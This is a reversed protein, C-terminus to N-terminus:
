ADDAMGELFRSPTGSWSLWLEDRARTMAVYLLRQEQALADEEDSPDTQEEVARRHPVQGEEVASIAVAQFELGKARHMTGVRIGPDHLSANSHLKLVPLDARSLAASAETALANTRLFVAIGETPTGADVWSQVRQVMGAWEEQRSPFSELVPEPGRRLSVTRTRDESGEDLDDVETGLVRDAVQRIQETTRYNVRLIHSRGRVEIGLSRLSFGGPYIRQGADGAVLFNEEHGRALSWLFRIEPARLDQVEDVVVATFGPAASGDQVLQTARLCLDAWTMSGSELLRARVQDFFTWLEKRQRVSVGSGRGTRAVSRYSPWDGLGKAQIVHNWEAALFDPDWASGHVPALTRLTEEAREAGAPHIGPTQSRVLELALAHVTGVRVRKRTEGELLLDLSRELNECLTTVFSTLFVSHGARALHRARHLGVVTKGTGASGTVKMPGSAQAQVIRRQSPHLFTIWRELPAKLAAKLEEEDEAVFFNRRTEAATELPQDLEPAPPTVFRGAYLDLLREGVGSPLRAAVELVHDETRVERVAPLWDEPVGLSLLYEDSHHEFRPPLGPDYEVLVKTRVEEVEEVNVIQLSGQVSHRGVDRREAWAYAADHHGAHLLVWASDEQYAIARLEQTIRGSWLRNGRTNLRELSISPHAPNQQFLLVFENARAQESPQLDGLSRFYEPAFMVQAM